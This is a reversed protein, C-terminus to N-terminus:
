GGRSFFFFGGRGAATPYGQTQPPNPPRRPSGIVVEHFLRVAQTEGPRAGVKFLFSFKKALVGEVLAEFFVIVVYFAQDLEGALLAHEAPRQPDFFQERFIRSVGSLLDLISSRWGRDEIM